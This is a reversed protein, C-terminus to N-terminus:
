NLMPEPKKLYKKIIVECLKVCKKEILYYTISSLGVNIIIEIPFVVFWNLNTIFSIKSIAILVWWQTLYVSFSIKGIYQFLFNNFLIMKKVSSIVLIFFILGIAMSIGNKFLCVPM